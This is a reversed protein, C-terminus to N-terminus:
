PKQRLSKCSPWSYFSTNQLRQWLSCDFKAGRALLFAFHRVFHQRWTLLVQCRFLRGTLAALNSGVATAIGAGTRYRGCDLGLAWCTLAGRVSVTSSGHLLCLVGRLAWQWPKGSKADWRACTRWGLALSMGQNRDVHVRWRQRAHRSRGSLQHRNPVTM